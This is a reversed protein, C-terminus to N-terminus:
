YLDKMALDCTVYQGRTAAQQVHMAAVYYQTDLTMMLLNHRKDMIRKEEAQPLSDCVELDLGPVDSTFTKLEYCLHSRKSAILDLFELVSM